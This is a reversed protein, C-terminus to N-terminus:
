NQPHAQRSRFLHELLARQLSDQKALNYRVDAAEKGSFALVDGDGFHLTSSKFVVNAGNRMYYSGGDFFGTAGFVDMSLFLRRNAIRPDWIAAGQELERGTGVGLLDLITPTVDLHSTPWDLTVPHELVAPVYVLMPVHMVTDDLKGHSVLQVPQNRPAVLMRLGHDSTVVIITNNLADDRKLEDLLEGLWADQYVALAHGREELSNTERGKLERWPDHGIEPFCAAAFREHDTTWRHIDKRLSRLVQLDHGEVYSVPDFFTAAGERDLSPDIDPEVIKEFGLSVLMRDDRQAPDKWVFGYFATKYGAARLSNMMEPLQVQRDGIALGASCKTYLSTFLSFAAFNTLPFTTYHSKSLFAHERLRRVNPMDRLSDTAPDFVQAPIAELVFLLVNYGQAKGIYAAPPSVPVHTTERYLHLLEPTSRALMDADQNSHGLVFGSGDSDLLAANTVEALLSSSWPMPPVRPVSALASAVAAMGFVLLCAYNLWRVSKRMAIAAIVTTLAVAAIWGAIESKVSPSATIVSTDHSSIAWTIAAWLSKASTFSGTTNYVAVQLNLWVEMVLALLASLAIRWRLPLLYTFGCLILPILVGCLLVDDRFLATKEWVHLLGSARIGLGSERFGGCTLISYKLSLASIAPVLWPLLIIGPKNKECWSALNQM